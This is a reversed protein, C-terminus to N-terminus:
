ARNKNKEDDIVRMGLRCYKVYEDWGDNDIAINDFYHFISVSDHNVSLTALLARGTKTSRSSNSPYKLV